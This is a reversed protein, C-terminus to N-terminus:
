IERIKRPVVIIVTRINTSGISFSLPIQVSGQLNPATKYLRLTKNNNRLEASLYDSVGMKYKVKNNM